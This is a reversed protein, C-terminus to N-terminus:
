RLKRLCDGATRASARRVTGAKVLDVVKLKVLRRPDPVTAFEPAAADYIAKAESPLAAACATAGAFTRARFSL